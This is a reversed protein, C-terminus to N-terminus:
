VWVFFGPAVPPPPAPLSRIIFFVDCREATSLTCCSSAAYQACAGDAPFETPTSEDKHWYRAHCTECVAAAALSPLTFLTLLRLAM